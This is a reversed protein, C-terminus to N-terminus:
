YYQQAYCIEAMLIDCHKTNSIGMHQLDKLTLMKFTFLDIEERQFVGCYMSLGHQHLIKSINPCLPKLAVPSAQRFQHHHQQQQHRQNNHNNPPPHQHQQQQQLITTNSNALRRNPQLIALSKQQLLKLRQQHDQLQQQSMKQAVPLIINHNRQKLPTRVNTPTAVYDQPLNQSINSTADAHVIKIIPCNQNHMMSTPATTTQHQSQQQPKQIDCKQQQQQQHCCNLKKPVEKLRLRSRPMAEVTSKNTQNEFVDRIKRFRESYRQKPRIPSDKRSKNPSTKSLQQQIEHQKQITALLQQQQELRHKQRVEDIYADLSGDGGFNFDFSTNENLPTLPTLPSNPM